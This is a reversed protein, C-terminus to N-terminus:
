TSERKAANLIDSRLIRKIKQEMAETDATPFFIRITYPRGDMIKTFAATAEMTPAAQLTVQNNGMRIGKQM